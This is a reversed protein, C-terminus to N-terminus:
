AVDDCLENEDNAQRPLATSCAPGLRGLAALFGEFDSREVAVAVLERIAALPGVVLAQPIGRDPVLVATREFLAVYVLLGSRGSTQEIGLADFAAKAAREARQRRVARPTLMRRLAPVSAVLAMGLVFALAVDLPITRVDYVTEGFWMVLFGVLACAAGFALSVVVYYSARRRVAVVVEVSTQREIARVVDATRLKAAPELFGRESM